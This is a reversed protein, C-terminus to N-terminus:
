TTKGPVFTIAKSFKDTVLMVCDFGEISTPLGLIFNLTITHFLWPLSLISQMSGYPSHQPTQNMQCQPCYRIFKHLQKSLNHIYLSQILQEHMHAYGPHGLGNHALQFVEKTLSQPIYLRIGQKPNNFYILKQILQYPLQAANEGLAGNDLIM